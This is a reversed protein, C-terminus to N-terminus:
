TNTRKNIRFKYGITFQQTTNLYSHTNKFVSILGWNVRYEFVFRKYEYSAGLLLALNFTNVGHGFESHHGEQTYQPLGRVTKKYSEKTNFAPQLGGKFMWRRNKGVHYGIYLPLTIYDLISTETINYTYGSIEEFQRKGGQMSYLIGGLLSIHDSMRYETEVGYALREKYNGYNNIHSFTLGVKPIIYWTGKEQQALANGSWLLLACAMCLIRAQRSTYFRKMSM